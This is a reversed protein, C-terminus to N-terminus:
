HSWDESTVYTEYSMAPESTSVSSSLVNFEDAGIDPASGMVPWLGEIEVDM